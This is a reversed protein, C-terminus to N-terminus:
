VSSCYCLISHEGKRKGVWLGAVHRGRKERDRNIKQKQKLFVESQKINNKGSSENSIPASHVLHIQMNESHWAGKGEWVYM